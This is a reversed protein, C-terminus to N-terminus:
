FTLIKEQKKGPQIQHLLPDLVWSWGSIWAPIESQLIM